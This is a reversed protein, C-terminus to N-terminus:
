PDPTVRISTTYFQSCLYLRYGNTCVGDIVAQATVERLYIYLPQVAGLSNKLDGIHIRIFPQSEGPTDGSPGEAIVIGAGQSFGLQGSAIAGTFPTADAGTDIYVGAPLSANSLQNAAIDKLFSYFTWNKGGNTPAQAPLNSGLDNSM